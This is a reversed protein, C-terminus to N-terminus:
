KELLVKGGAFDLGGGGDGQAHEHWQSPHSHLAFTHVWPIMVNKLCGSALVLPLGLFSCPGKLPTM